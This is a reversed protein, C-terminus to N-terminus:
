KNEVLNELAKRQTLTLELLCQLRMAQDPTGARQTQIRVRLDCHTERYNSWAARAKDIAVKFKEKSVKPSTDDPDEPVEILYLQSNLYQIHRDNEDLVPAACKFWEQSNEYACDREVDKDILAKDGPKIATVPNAHGITTVAVLGALVVCGLVIIGTFMKSNTTKKM